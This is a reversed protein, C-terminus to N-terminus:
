AARSTTPGAEAAGSPEAPYQRAWGPEAVALQMTETTVENFRRRINVAYRLHSISRAAYIAAVLLTIAAAGMASQVVGGISPLEDTM